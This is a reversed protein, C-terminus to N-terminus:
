VYYHQYYFFYLNVNLLLFKSSTSLKVVFLHLLKLLQVIFTINIYKVYHMINLSLGHYPLRRCLVLTHKVGQDVSGIRVQKDVGVEDM